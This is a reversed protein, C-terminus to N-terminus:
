ADVRALRRVLVAGVVQLVVAGGLLWAGVPSGALRGIMGPSLLEYLALLFFPMALIVNSTFRAQATEARAEAELRAQDELAASVDRLLAALNGGSRRQLRISAVLLDVRRSGARDRFEALAGDVTAGLEVDAAVRALEHGIPGRLEGAAVAIAARTTHGSALADALRTAAIATGQGLRRTYRERRMVLVRPALLAAVAAVCAAPLPNMFLLGAVLSGVAFAAQLRRRERRTAGRGEAGARRLPALVEDVLSAASGAGRTLRPAARRAGDALLAAAGCGALAAAIAAFAVGAERSV